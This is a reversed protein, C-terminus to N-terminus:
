TAKSEDDSLEIETTLAFLDDRFAAALGTLAKPPLEETGIEVILDAREDM